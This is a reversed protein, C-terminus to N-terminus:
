FKLNDATKIQPLSSSELAIERFKQNEILLADYSGQGVIEGKEMVYIVDCDKVTQLRHAILIITKQRTFKRIAEMIVLETKNDLASTAEDFILVQPEHYLARAIGIRQRQGGSLRIGNEGIHTFYGEQLESTVFDHLNALKAAAIVREMEIANEEIGLAINQAISSDILYINQPVYGINCQWATLNIESLVTQDVRLEGESPILLGLIIDVLTTKGAGSCGVIGITTCKKAILSINKLVPKNTNPYHYSIKNLQLSESLTFIENSKMRSLTAMKYDRFLIEIAASHYNLLTLGSFMQQLAPMLRYGALAYLGLLPLLRTLNEKTSILYFVLLLMGGFAIIEILYRTILPTLQNLTEFNAYKKATHTYQESFTEQRNLVSIEKIAGFIEKISQYRKANLRSAEMGAESLRKRVLKYILLYLGGIVVFIISALMYDILFLLTMISLCVVLKTATLSLNIFVGNILRDVESIINKQFQGSNRNLFFEYPQNLYNSLLKLSIKYGKKFCFRMMFWTTLASFCNGGVLILFVMAGLLLTFNKVSSMNLFVYLNHLYPNTEVFAPKSVVALFPLITAVSLMEIFGVLCICLLILFLVRREQKDFFTMIKKITQQMIV